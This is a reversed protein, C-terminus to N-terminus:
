HLYYIIKGHWIVLSMDLTSSMLQWLTSMKLLKSMFFIPKLLGLSILSLSIFLSIRNRLFIAATWRVSPFTIRYNFFFWKHVCQLDKESRTRHTFYLDCRYYIICKFEGREVGFGGLAGEGYPLRACCMLQAKYKVTHM